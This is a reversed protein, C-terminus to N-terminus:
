QLGRGGTPWQTTISKQTFCLPCNTSKYTVGHGPCTKYVEQPKTTRQREQEATHQLTNEVPPALSTYMRSTQQTASRQIGSPDYAASRMYFPIAMSRSTLAKSAHKGCGKCAGDGKCAHEYQDVDLDDASKAASAGAPAAPKNPKESMGPLKNLAGATARQAMGAAPQAMGGPRDVGSGMSQGSSFGSSFSSGAGSKLIDIAARTGKEVTNGKADIGESEVEGASISVHVSPAFLVAGDTEGEKEMSETEVEGKAKLIQLAKATTSMQVDAPASVNFNSATSARNDGGLHGIGAGASPPPMAKDSMGQAAVDLMEAAEALDSKKTADMEGTSLANIDSAEAFAGKNTKANTLAMGALLGLVGGTAFASGVGKDAEQSKSVGAQQAAIAIAQKQGGPFRGPREKVEDTWQRIKHEFESEGKRKTKKPLPKGFDPEVSKRAKKGKKKSAATHARELMRLAQRKAGAQKDTDKIDGAAWNLQHAATAHMDRDFGTRAVQADVLKEMKAYNEAYKSGGDDLMKQSQKIMEKNPGHIDKGKYHSVKSEKIDEYAEFHRNALGQLAFQENRSLDKMDYKADQIAEAAKKHQDGTFDSSYSDFHEKIAGLAASVAPSAGESAFGHENIADSAKKDLDGLNELTKKDMPVELGDAVEISLDTNDWNQPPTETGLTIEKKGGGKPKDYYYRYNGPTGERRTYKPM